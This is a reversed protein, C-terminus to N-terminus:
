DDERMEDDEGGAIWLVLPLALLCLVFLSHTVPILGFIILAYITGAVIKM